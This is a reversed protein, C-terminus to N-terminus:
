EEEKNLDEFLEEVSNFSKFNEEPKLRDVLISEVISTTTEANYHEEDDVIDEYYNDNCANESVIEKTCIFLVQM